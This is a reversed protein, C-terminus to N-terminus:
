KNFEKLIPAVSFCPIEGHEFWKLEQESHAREILRLLHLLQNYTKEELAVLQHGSRITVITPAGGIEDLIDFAEMAMLRIAEKENKNMM